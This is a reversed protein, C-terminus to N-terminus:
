KLLVMKRTQVFEGADMRCLYLGSPLNGADWTVTYSGAPITGQVLTAVERGLLDFIRLSVPGTRGVDYGIMTVPNFPNPYNARLAYATPLSNRIPDAPSLDPEMRVLYFDAMGAGFSETFGMVVYGSDSTQEICLAYDDSSGGYTRTWLTDGANDTKVLYYDAAGSGFSETYGAVFYGGDATQQVAYAQDAQSSGYTRTWLTDGQANTKVLYADYNGAGFSAAGGAVIYGSDTTQQVSYMYDSQIGGYTRTWLTDGQANTKVLYADYNGAGFSTTGGAIIYGSDATQQVSHPEDNGNGGYTRTWLTDGASNTKILYFDSGGAGFSQTWGAIIYGGDATQQVSKAEDNLAGGYTRTWLTDGSSNTKVLYYDQGGAGFSITYGALIYGGDTTQQASYARDASSGGYTRTWLTDGQSNMKMLYFDVSGAGFSQTWGAAVFNGDTTQLISYGRDDSNGGYTRTWLTDPGTQALCGCSCALLTLVIAIRKM